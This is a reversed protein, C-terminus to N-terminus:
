VHGQYECTVRVSVGCKDTYTPPNPNTETGQSFRLHCSFRLGDMAEDVTVNQHYTVTRPAWLPPPTEGDERCCFWPAPCGPHHRVEWALCPRWKRPWGRGCFM